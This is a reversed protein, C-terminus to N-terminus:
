GPTKGLNLETGSRQLIGEEVMGNMCEEIRQRLKPGTRKFGLGRGTLRICEDTSIRISSRVLQLIGSRLESTPLYRPDKVLRDSSRSRDRVRTIGRTDATVFFENRDGELCAIRGSSLGHALSGYVADLAQQTVNRNNWIDCIRDTIIRLHVPGEKGIVEMACQLLTETDANTIDYDPAKANLHVETYIDSRKEAPPVHKEREIGRSAEKEGYEIAENDADKLAELLKRLESERKYFWDTNWIRHFRWGKSELVAQRLRDRERAWSSSHYRAGDCEIALLYCGPKGPDHVALDIRFGASGVQAAVWYDHQELARAVAEEFPSDMGRGTDLPVDSEGTEAFKLFKKFALVGRKGSAADARIDTHRISSFILCRWRARTFLVNLRREGGDRNIPGFNQSFYNNEDRAYGVSVIIVDREDGQVNELNKVFFADENNENCFADLDPHKKRATEFANEIEDRQATSLAVVGLSMDPNERAHVGVHEVIAEAEAKNSRRGGRSYIGDVFEFGLGCNDTTQEPHPPFILRHEYFEENSVQILSPHRSRYHWELMGRASGRADCLSLISEMDRIQDIALDDLSEEEDSEEEESGVQRDFFSTPPLQKQDGVVVYQGARTLAGIADAPKIQSAEDIVLLDFRLGGPRLYQSISLPSMLFVPKLRQVAQGAKDLLKRIPLHRSKKTFEGRLLGAQGSTGLGTASRHHRDAVMLASARMLQADINRYKEVLGTRDTRAIGDLEPNESTMRDWLATCRVHHLSDCAHEHALTGEALGRRFPDLGAESIRRAAHSLDFWEDLRGSKDRWTALREKLMVLPADITGTPPFAISEDLELIRSLETWSADRDTLAENWQQLIPAPDLDAPVSQLIECIRDPDMGRDIRARLWDVAPIHALIAQEREHWRDGMLERGLDSRLDIAKRMRGYRVLEELLQLREERSNPLRGKHVSRLRSLSRRYAGIFFRLFSSGHTRIDRLPHIWSEDFADEHVRRELKERLDRSEDIERCFDLLPVGHKRFLGAEIWQRLVEPREVLAALTELLPRMEGITSPLGFAKLRRCSEDAVTRLRDLAKAARDVRPLLGQKEVVNLHSRVGRWPHDREPGFRRTLEALSEVLEHRERFENPNWGDCGEIVFGPAPCRKQALHSLKGIIWYPTMGSRQDETHLLDSIRNLEDRLRKAEEFKETTCGKPKGLGATRSLDNYFAKRTAKHSHLELCMDGLGAQKLRNYVTDLAVKKEAVFLVTKEHLVSSAIINAITQSKGTGPPGQVVLNRGDAAEAIIQTQSSDADMIHGLDEPERFRQDLNERGIVNRVSGDGTGLLLKGALSEAAGESASWEALDSAMRNKLFSYFGLLHVDREIRFDNDTLVAREVADHYDDPVWEDGPPLDPLECSFDDLLRQRLSVNVEMDQDRPSLDFTNESRNRDLDVPVLLLPAHRPIGSDRSEFWILFGIALFLCNIGQEEELTRADRFLSLLKKRLVDEDLQHGLLPHSSAEPLTIARGPRCLRKFLSNADGSFQVHRSRSKGIPANILPTRSGTDRLQLVLNDVVEPLRSGEPTESM